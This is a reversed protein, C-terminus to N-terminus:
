LALAGGVRTGVDCWSPKTPNLSVEVFLGMGNLLLSGFWTARAKNGRTFRDPLDELAQEDIEHHIGDALLVSNISESFISARTGRGVDDSSDLSPNM